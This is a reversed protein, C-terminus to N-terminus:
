ADPQRKRILYLTREASPIGVSAEVTFREGFAEELGERTDSGFIDEWTLVFGSPDRFSGALSGNTPNM